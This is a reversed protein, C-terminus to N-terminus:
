DMIIECEKSKTPADKIKEAIMSALMLGEFMRLGKNVETFILNAEEVGGRNYAEVVRDVAQEAQSKM